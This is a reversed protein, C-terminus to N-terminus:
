AHRIRRQRRLWAAALGLAALAGALVLLAITLLPPGGTHSVPVLHPAALPAAHAPHTLKLTGGVGGSLRVQGKGAPAVTWIINAWATHLKASAPVRIHLISYGTKHAGITLRGPTISSIWSAGPHRHTKTTYDAARAALTVPSSGGNTVPVRVIATGAHHLDATMDAPVTITPM